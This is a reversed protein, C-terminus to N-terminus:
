VKRNLRVRDHHNKNARNRQSSNGQWNKIWEKIDDMIYQKDKDTM